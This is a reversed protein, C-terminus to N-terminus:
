ARRRRRSHASGDMLWRQVVSTIVIRDPPKATSSGSNLIDQAVFAAAIAAAGNVPSNIATGEFPDSDTLATVAFSHTWGFGLPGNRLKTGSGYYRQFALGYPM